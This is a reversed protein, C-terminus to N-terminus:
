AVRRRLERRQGGSLGGWVGVLSSDALGVALCEDRVLCAACVAKAPASPQGRDPLFDVLPYELCLADRHWAPRGALLEALCAYVEAPDCRTWLDM